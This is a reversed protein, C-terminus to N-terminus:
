NSTARFLDTSSTGAASYYIAGCSSVPVAMSRAGLDVYSDFVGSSVNIWTARETGSVEDWFFLTQQDSSLGTPRRRLAGQPALETGQVPSGAQWDDTTLLRASRYLTPPGAGGDAAAGPSTEYISYLFVADDEALVPDGYAQGSGLVGAFNGYSGTAASAPDFASSRDARVIESFGQGDANVVVLRLGDASLAVRDGTFAGAPLTRATYAASTSTRDAYHVVKSPADDATWAISLEDPTVSDLVDNAATSASVLTGAGWSLTAKCTPPPPPPGTVPGADAGGDDGPADGVDGGADTNSGDDSGSTADGASTADDGPSGPHSGGGSSGGTTVGTGDDGGGADLARGTGPPLDNSSSCAASGLVLALVALSRGAM